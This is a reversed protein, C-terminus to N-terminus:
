RPPETSIEPSAPGYGPLLDAPRALLRAELEALVEREEVSLPADPACREAAVGEHRLVLDLLKAMAGLEGQLAKDLLRMIVARQRSIRRETGGERVTIRQQLEEHLDTLLNRAQRPRGNPNGSRGKRFRTHRPTKKYGVEYDGPMGPRERSAPPRSWQPQRPPATSPLTM